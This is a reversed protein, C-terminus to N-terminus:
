RQRPQRPKIHAKAQAALTQGAALFLDKDMLCEGAARLYREDGVGNHADRAAGRAVQEELTDGYAAALSRHEGKDVSRQPGEQAAQIEGTQHMALMGFAGPPFAVVVQPIHKVADAIDACRLLM